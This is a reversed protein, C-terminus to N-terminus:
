FLQPQDDLPIGLLGGLDPVPKTCRAPTIWMLRRGQALAEARTIAPQPQPDTKFKRAVKAANVFNRWRAHFADGVPLAVTMAPDLSRGTAASRRETFHILLWCPVGVAARDLMHEVQSVKIVKSSMKFGPDGCVKAEIIVQRGGALAIDFDPYSPVELNTYIVRGRLSPNPHHKALETLEKDPVKVCKTGYRALHVGKLKEAAYVIIAEFDKGTLQLPIM